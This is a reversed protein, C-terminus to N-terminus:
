MFRSDMFSFLEAVFHFDGKDSIVDVFLLSAVRERIASLQKKDLKKDKHGPM